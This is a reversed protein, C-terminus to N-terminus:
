RLERRSGQSAEAAETTSHLGGIIDMLGIPPEVAGDSQFTISTVSQHEYRSYSFEFAVEQLLDHGHPVQNHHTKQQQGNTNITSTWGHVFGLEWRGIHGRALLHVLLIAGSAMTCVGFAM